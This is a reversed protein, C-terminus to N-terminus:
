VADATSSGRLGWIVCAPGVIPVIWAVLLAGLIGGSKLEGRKRLVSVTAVGALAIHLFPVIQAAMVWYNLPFNQRIETM